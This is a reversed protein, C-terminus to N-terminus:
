PEVARYIIVRCRFEVQGLSRDIPSGNLAAAAARLRGPIKMLQM